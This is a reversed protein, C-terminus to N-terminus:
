WMEEFLRKVGSQRPVPVAMEYIDEVGDDSEVDSYEAGEITELMLATAKRANPLMMKIRNGNVDTFYASLGESFINTDDPVANITNQEVVNLEERKDKKYEGITFSSSQAELKPAKVKFVYDNLVKRGQTGLDAVAFTYPTATIEQIKKMGFQYGEMGFYYDALRKLEALSNMNSTIAYGCNNRAQLSISGSACANQSLLIVSLNYHRGLTFMKNLVESRVVNIDSVVDDLVVLVHPLKDKGVEDRKEKQTDLIKKLLAEDFFDAVNDEPVFHWADPQLKVTESLLYADDFREHLKEIIHHCLVTKGVFRMGYIVMSFDEIIDEINFERVNASNPTTIVAEDKVMILTIVGAEVNVCTKVM